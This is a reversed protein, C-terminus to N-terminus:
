RPPAGVGSARGGEAGALRLGTPRVLLLPLEARRLVEAAVSGFLLRELGTRGHTALVILSADVARSTELVVTAVPGVSAITQVTVGQERLRAAVDRLYDEAEAREQEVLDADLVPAGLLIEGGPALPPAVVPTPVVVRLLVLSGNLLRALGVAHPLAEEALASGDLPVLVRGPREGVLLPGDPVGARVLLVPVPSRALVAEAVSGYVVRGLGSRGHTSLVVLDAQRLAIETLIGEVPREYPVAVEAVVAEEALRRAVGQLYGEAEAVARVQAATPDTGPLTDVWVARVLVLRAGSARALATALPLAREALRSGDLPVLLTRYM